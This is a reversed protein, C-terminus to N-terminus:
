KQNPIYRNLRSGTSFRNFATVLWVNQVAPTSTHQFIHIHQRSRSYWNILIFTTIHKQRDLHLISKISLVRLYWVGKYIVSCILHPIYLYIKMCYWMLYVNSKAFVVTCLHITCLSTINCKIALIVYLGYSKKISSKNTNCSFITTQKWTIKLKWMIGVDTWYHAQM